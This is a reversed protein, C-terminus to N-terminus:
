KYSRLLDLMRDVERHVEATQRVVLLGGVVKMGTTDDEWTGSGCNERLLDMIVDPQTLDDGGDPDEGFIAGVGGESDGQSLSIDPGPFDKVDFMLDRIDYVHSYPRLIRRDETTVLLVGNQVDWALRSMDLVLSLVNRAPLDRVKLSVRLEEPSRERLVEPDVVLNVSTAQRVYEIVDELPAGEFDMTLRTTELRDIMEREEASLRVQAAAPLTLVLLAAISRIARSM